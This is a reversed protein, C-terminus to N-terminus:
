QTFQRLASVFPVSIFIVGPLLTAVTVPIWVQQEKREIASLLERHVDRRLSRAEDSVMRGLDSAEGSLSLIPVLRDLAPLRAVSAWERLAEAESLGQRIRLSVRHLDQACAGESRTSLRAMAGGLSFGASLLIALQEAVTPLELFLRRQWAASATSLRQEVILFALFTGIVVGLLGVIASVRLGVALILTIGFGAATRGLQHLRFGTADLPSHIRELRLELSESVGLMRELRAGVAHALPGIVERFSSGSWLRTSRRAGPGAAYPRLRDSLPARGFWSIESLLLSGGIWFLVGFLAFARIM